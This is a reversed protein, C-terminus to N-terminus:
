QAYILSLAIAFSIKLSINGDRLNFMICVSSRESVYGRHASMHMHFYVFPVHSQNPTCIKRQVKEEMNECCSAGLCVLEHM